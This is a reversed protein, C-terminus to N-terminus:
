QRVVWTGALRDHLGRNPHIVAYIAASLWLVLLVSSLICAATFEGSKILLAAFLMPIFLPLWVIAWRRLLTVRKAPEGKANIIALRFIFQGATSRFAVTLLQILAIAGLVVVTSIVIGGLVENLPKDHYRGVFFAIWVYLGIMFISGM